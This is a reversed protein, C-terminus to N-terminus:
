LEVAERLATQTVGVYLETTASSAHGLLEQVLRIDKTKDYVHTGFTARLDHSSISRQLGARVGLSTVIKRAHRDHLDVVTTGNAFAQVVPTQLYDWAQQSVPVIRQKDGKGLILLDRRQLDFHMPKVALAEAIRCGVMGCLVILSRQNDNSAVSILRKVGEMGEPLPHPVSKAPTPADYDSLVEGWGAWKAFARISTLRRGTTKVAVKKRELTLWGAALDEYEEQLVIPNGEETIAAKLFMRLDTSYAKATNESRGRACLWSRFKDISEPSLIMARQSNM